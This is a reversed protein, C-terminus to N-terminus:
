KRESIRERVCVCVLEFACAHIDLYLLICSFVYGYVYVVFLLCVMSLCVCVSVCMGVYLCVYMHVWVSSFIYVKRGEDKDECCAECPLVFSIRM